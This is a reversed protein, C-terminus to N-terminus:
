LGSFSIKLKGIKQAKKSPSAIFKSEHFVMTKSTLKYALVCNEM